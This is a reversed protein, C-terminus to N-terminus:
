RHQPSQQPGWSKLLQFLAELTDYVIVWLKQFAREDRGAQTLCTFKAFTTEETILSHKRLISLAEELRFWANNLYYGGMWKEAEKEQTFSFTNDRVLKELVIKAHKQIKSRKRDMDNLFVARWLSFGAGVYLAFLDQHAADLGQAKDKALADQHTDAFELLALLLKQIQSRRKVLWKLDEISKDAV